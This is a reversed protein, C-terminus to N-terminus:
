DVVAAGNARTAADAHQILFALQELQITLDVTVLRIHSPLRLVVPAFNLIGRVGAAALVEAVDQAVDGPVTIIGLEARLSGIREALTAGAEITLGEVSQGVKAPDADFLGVIEFGQAFEDGLLIVQLGPYELTLFTAARGMCSDAAEEKRINKKSAIGFKVLADAFPSGSGIGDITLDVERLKTQSIASSSALLIFLLALGLWKM